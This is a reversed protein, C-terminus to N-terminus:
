RVVEAVGESVEEERDCARRRERALLLAGRVSCTLVWTLNGTDM